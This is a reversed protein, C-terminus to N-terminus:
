YYQSLCGKDTFALASTTVHHETLNLEIRMLRQDCSRKACILCAMVEKPHYTL